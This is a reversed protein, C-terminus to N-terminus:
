KPIGSKSPRYFIRFLPSTADTITTENCQLAVHLLEIDQWEGDILRQGLFNCGSQPLWRSNTNTVNIATNAPATTKM